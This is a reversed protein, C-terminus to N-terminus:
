WSETEIERVKVWLEKGGRERERERERERKGFVKKIGKERM